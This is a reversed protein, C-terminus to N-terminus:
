QQRLKARQARRLIFITENGLAEALEWTPHQVVRCTRHQSRIVDIWPVPRVTQGHVAQQPTEMRSSACMLEPWSFAGENAEQPMSGYKSLQRLAFKVNDVLVNIHLSWGWAHFVLPLDVIFFLCCNTIIDLYTYIFIYIYIHIIYM